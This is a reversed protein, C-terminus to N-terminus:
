NSVRLTILEISEENRIIEEGVKYVEDKFLIRGQVEDLLFVRKASFTIWDVKVSPKSQDSSKDLM